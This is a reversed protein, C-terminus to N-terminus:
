WLGPVLRYRVRETYRAYGELGQALTREEYVARLGLLPIFLVVVVLLGWWSGLLFASGALYLLGGSYLPHRVVAYPGTDVVKQGREAQVKVAIIAFRNARLALFGLFNGITLTLAGCVQLWGPVRSWGFRAADLAMFVLWAHFLLFFASILLKDLGTQGKQLPFALREKLLEPDTKAVWLGFGLGCAGNLTLYGWGAGWLITGAGWFLLAATLLLWVATHVLLRRRM